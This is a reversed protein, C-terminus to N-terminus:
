TYVINRCRVLVGPFQLCGPVWCTQLRIRDSEVASVILPMREAGPLFDVSSLYRQRAHKPQYVLETLLLPWLRECEIRHDAGFRSLVAGVHGSPRWFLWRPKLRRKSSMWFFNRISSRCLVHRNINPVFVRRSRGPPSSCCGGVVALVHEAIETQSCRYRV